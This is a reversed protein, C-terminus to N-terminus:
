NWTGRYLSTSSEPVSKGRSVVAVVVVVVVVDVAAVLVASSKM